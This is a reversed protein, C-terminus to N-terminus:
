AQLHSLLLQRIGRSWQRWLSESGHLLRVYVREGIGVVPTSPPLSLELQFVGEVATTGAQDSMDVAIEGGGAVGLAMSPLDRSGAPVERVIHAPVPEGLHDALMVDARTRHSRLLGVADQDVVARVLPEDPRLLYGIVDGQRLLKGRLEHPDVPYFVGDSESRVTLGAIRTRVHELEGKVATIDDAVMAARVRSTQRQEIKQDRLERLRAELVQERALLQRDELRLLVDGTAVIDGSEVAVDVVFGEVANVVRAREGPWVVGQAMTVLPAPLSLLGGALLVCAALVAFGRVRRAELRPSTIIFRLSLFLPKILQMSVAWAALVVGIVLFESALYLAIGVM